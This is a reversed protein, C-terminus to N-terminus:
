VMLERARKSYGQGGERGAKQGQVASLATTSSANNVVWLEVRSNYVLLNERERM